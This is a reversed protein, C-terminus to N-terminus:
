FGIGLMLMALPGCWLGACVAPREYAYRRPAAAPPATRRVAHTSATRASIKPSPALRPIPKSTAAVTTQATPASSAILGESGAVPGALLVAAGFAASLYLRSLQAATM